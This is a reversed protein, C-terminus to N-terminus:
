ALKHQLLDHMHLAGHIPQQNDMVILQTISNKEMISLAETALAEPSITKPTTHMFTDVRRTLVDSHMAAARRFDGDTFIGLLQNQADVIIAMGLRKESIVMLAELVSASPSVYPLQNAPRMLDRVRTLLKRGLSGGPHSRAFDEASFGRVQLLVMALADGLALSTTTSATPALGLPCAEQSVATCLHVTAMRALTSHPHGTIAIMPISLRKFHPVLFLLEANEGSHSLAIVCDSETIMGLDGHLAEAPHMFFSPAGTSSFTAAMKRSIHGSKGIGTVVIRGQTTHLIDIAQAFAEDLTSALEAIAASETQLVTRGQAIWHSANL